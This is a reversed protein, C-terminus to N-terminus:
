NAAPSNHQQQLLNENKLRQIENLLLDGQAKTLVGEDQIRKIRLTLLEGPIAIIAELIELPVKLGGVVSSPKDIDIKNLMGDAITLNTKKTVFRARSVDVAYVPGNNPLMLSYERIDNTIVIGKCWKIDDPLKANIRVTVGYDTLGRFLVSSNEGLPPSDATTCKKGDSASNCDPTVVFEIGHDALLENLKARSFMRENPATVDLYTNIKIDDRYACKNTQDIKYKSPSAGEWFSMMVIKAIDIGIKALLTVAQGSQDTSITNVTQLLQNPGVGISVNDDTIAESEYNLFYTRSTDAILKPTGINIEYTKPASEPPKNPKVPSVNVNINNTVTQTTATATTSNATKNDGGTAAESSKSGFTITIPILAKPLYYVIGTAPDGSVAPVSTTKLIRSACGSITLVMSLLLMAIKM